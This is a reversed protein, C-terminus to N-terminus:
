LLKQQAAEGRRNEAMGAKYLSDFLLDFADRGSRHPSHRYESKRCRSAIYHSGDHYIKFWDDNLEPADFFPPIFNEVPTLAAYDM